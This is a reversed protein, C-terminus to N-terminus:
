SKIEKFVDEVSLNQLGAASMITVNDGLVYHRDPNSKLTNYMAITQCGSAGILHMPGTDNGVAVQAGHALSVIDNFSTECTLDIFKKNEEQLQKNLETESPGGILVPTINQKLLRQGLAAYHDLPWRKEPHQPACGTVFLAYKEPLNLRSIDTKMWELNDVKVDEIDALALTQVHGYFAHGKTREPSTNRHSAGKATGVWETKKSKDLLKFYLGTRDNNQLDYVRDPNLVRLKKRLDLWGKLDLFKPRNDIIIEDFYGCEEGFNKFSKTTLLTIKANPHHRKIAKMPGLAQVFDGLASLKIVLVNDIKKEPEPLM